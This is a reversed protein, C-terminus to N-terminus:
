ASSSTPTLAKTAAVVKRLLLRRSVKLWNTGCISGFCQPFLDVPLAITELGRTGLKSLTITKDSSCCFLNTVKQRIFWDAQWLLFYDLRQTWYCGATAHNILCPSRMKLWDFEYGAFLYELPRRRWYEIWKPIEIEIWSNLLVLSHFSYM